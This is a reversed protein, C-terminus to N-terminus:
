EKHGFVRDWAQVAQKKTLFFLKRKKNIAEERTISYSLCMLYDTFQTEEIPFEDDLACWPKQNSNTM